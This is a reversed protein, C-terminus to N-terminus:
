RRPRGFKGGRGMLGRKKPAAKPKGPIDTMPPIRYNFGEIVRRPIEQEILAEIAQVKDMQDPSFLTYADGETKARGTRGIRHVYDESHQPVDYNIVHQVGRVDLGRSAIDTAILTSITGDKFDQLAKARENQNLNSHMVALDNNGHQQLWKAIRDAGAKTQFFIITSEGEINNLIHALLDFKVMADVPYLAHDVTDAPSIRIDISVEVPDRVAWTALNKITDPMTASFFLTQRKKGCQRIIRRVDEIFGMDLMRDVEDLILTEIRGLNLNGQGLHDLLRGPTAVVIDPKNGLQELQKGYKVGGYLLAMKLGM